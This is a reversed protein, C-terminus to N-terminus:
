ANLKVDAVIAAVFCTPEVLLLSPMLVSCFDAWAENDAESFSVLGFYECAECAFAFLIASLFLAGAIIGACVVIKKFTKM